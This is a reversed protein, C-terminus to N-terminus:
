VIDGYMLVVIILIVLGCLIGVGWFAQNDAQKVRKMYEEQESILLNKNSYDKM